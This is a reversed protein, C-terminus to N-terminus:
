DLDCCFFQEILDLSVLANGIQLMTVEEEKEMETHSIVRKTGSICTHRHFTNKFM